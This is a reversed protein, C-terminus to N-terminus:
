IEPKIETQQGPESDSETPTTDQPQSEAKADEESTHETENQKESQSVPEAGDQETPSPAFEKQEVTESKTESDEQVGTESSTESDTSDEPESAAESEGQTESETPEEPTNEESDGNQQGEPKNRTFTSTNETVCCCSFMWLSEAEADKLAAFRYGANTSDYWGLQEGVGKLIYMLDETLPYLTRSEEESVEIVFACDMYAKLLKSYSETTVTGDEATIKCTIDSEELLKALNVYTGSTFDVLVLPGGEILYYYGSKEDLFLKEQKATLDAYTLVQNEGITLEYAAPTHTGKYEVVVATDTEGLSAAVVETFSIEFPVTLDKTQLVGFKITVTDDAMVDFSQTLNKGTQGTYTDSGHRIEYKWPYYTHTSPIEFNFTGNSPATWTYYYGDGVKLFEVQTTGVEIPEPNKESGLSYTFSITYTQNTNTNNTIQFFTDETTFDSSIAVKGDLSEYLSNGYAVTFSGAGTINMAEARLSGISQLLYLTEGPAVSVNTEETVKESYWGLEFDVTVENLPDTSPNGVNITVTITGDASSNIADEGVTIEVSPEYDSSSGNNTSAYIVADMTTSINYTWMSESLIKFCLTSPKSTVWTYYHGKGDGFLNISHKGAAIPEPNTFHGIPYSYGIRYTTKADSDNVMTFIDPDDSEMVINKVEIKGNQATYVVGEYDITFARGTLVTVNGEEDLIAKGDADSLVAEVTMIAGDAYKLGQKCSVMEGSDLTIWSYGSASMVTHTQFSALFQVEGAPAQATEEATPDYTSVLIDLVDGYGMELNFTGQVSERDSYQADYKTVTEGSTHTVSYMWNGAAPMQITLIGDDYENEWTFWYVDADGEEIVATNSGTEEENVNKVVLPAKNNVNGVQYPFTAAYTETDGGTNGISILWSDTGNPIKVAVNGNADPMYTGVTEGEASYLKVCATTPVVTDEAGDEGKEVAGTITLIKGNLGSVNYFVETEPAIEKSTFADTVEIPLTKSGYYDVCGSIAAEVAPYTGDAAARAAVHVTVVDGKKFELAVPTKETEETSGDTQNETLNVSTEGVTATVDCPVGETISDLQLMMIGDDAAAFQYYYGDKDGAALAAKISVEGEADEIVDEPNEKTGLPANFNLVVSKGKSNGVQISVPTDKEAPASLAVSVVGSADAKYTTAKGNVTYIVYADPDKITLLSAGYAAVTEDQLNLNYYVTGSKPLVVTSVTDPFSSVAETYPSKVSGAAPAKETTTGQNNNNDNNNGSGTGPNYGSNGGPKSNGGTTPETAEETADTTEETAEETEETAEPATETPQETAVTTGVTEDPKPANQEGSDRGSCMSLLLLILLVVCVLGGILAAQKKNIKM